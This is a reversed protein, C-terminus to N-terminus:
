GKMGKCCQCSLFSLRVAGYGFRIAEDLRHTDLLLGATSGFGAYDEVIKMVSLVVSGGSPGECGFINWDKYTINLPKRRVISYNKLDELSMTGNTAQITRITADAIEGTYFADPGKEAVQELLNAYRKRTMTDGVKVLSGNPAFDLAWAPDKTLFSDKFLGEFSTILDPTVTWGDRALRVAPLILESWSM